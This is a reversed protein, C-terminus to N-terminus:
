VRNNHDLETDAAEHTDDKQTREENDIHYDEHEHKVFASKQGFFDDLNAM